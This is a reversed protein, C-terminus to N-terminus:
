TASHLADSGERPASARYYTFRGAITVRHAVETPDAFGAERMLMPIRDGFNYRLRESRHHVRALFGDSRATAGGFDVLHLSGGPKLVRRAEELTKEKEEPGLHFMLASVVRDFSADSYPLEEAFGRDLHVYLTKRRAKRQARALAKPDPDIGVVEAGPHLRKILIALNGTGCGIELIRQDPQFRAQNVLQRHVSEMGLLRQLPDYLPLLRDHGMAPLYSKRPDKATASM